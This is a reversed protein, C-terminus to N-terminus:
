PGDNQVMERGSFKVTHSTGIDERFFNFRRSKAVWCTTVGSAGEQIRVVPFRDPTLCLIQNKRERSRNNREICASNM